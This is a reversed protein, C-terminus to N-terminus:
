ALEEVHDRWRIEQQRIGFDKPMRDAGTAEIQHSPKCFKM